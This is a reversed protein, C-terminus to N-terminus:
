ARHRDYKYNLSCMGIIIYSKYFITCKKALDSLDAYIHIWIENKSLFIRLANINSSSIYYKLKLEESIGYKSLLANNKDMNNQSHDVICDNFDDGDMLQNLFIDQIAYKSKVESTSPFINLILRKYFKFVIVFFFNPKLIYCNQINKHEYM